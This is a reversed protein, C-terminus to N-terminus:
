VYRVREGFLCSGLNQILGVSVGPYNQSNGGTRRHSAACRTLAGEAKRGPAAAVRLGGRTPELEPTAM